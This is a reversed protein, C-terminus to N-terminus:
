EPLSPDREELIADPEPEPFMPDPEFIEDPDYDPDTM